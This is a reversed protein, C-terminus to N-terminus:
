LQSLVNAHLGSEEKRNGMKLHCVAKEQNFTEWWTILTSPVAGWFSLKAVLRHMKQGFWEIEVRNFLKCIHLAFGDMRVM